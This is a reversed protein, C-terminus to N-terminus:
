KKSWLFRSNVLINEDCESESEAFLVFQIITRIRSVLALSEMAVSVKMVLVNINGRDQIQVHQMELVTMKRAAM